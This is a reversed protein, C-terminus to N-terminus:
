QVAVYEKVLLGERMKNAAASVVKSGLPISPGILVSENYIAFVEVKKNTVTQSKSDFLWLKFGSSKDGVLSSLPVLYQDPGKEIKSIFVTARTGPTLKVNDSKNLAFTVSYTQTIPDPQTQHEIYHIDFTKTQKTLIKAKAIFKTNGANATILKEPVDFTFYYTSVDQLTAITDAPKIYSNNDIFRASVIADFPATLQTYSLDQEANDLTLEAIEYESMANDLLSKSAVGKEFMTQIRKLETTALDLRIKSEAVKREFPASDIKALLDGKKVQKGESLNVAVLRGSLEFKLNVDKVATVKAPFEFRKFDDFAIVESMQVVLPASKKNDFTEPQSCGIVSLLGFLIFLYRSVLVSWNIFILM